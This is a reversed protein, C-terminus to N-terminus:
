GIVVVRYEGASPAVAFKITVTSTSTHEIDAEIQAYPSAVEFIQVVVDKTGLNHSISYTTASTSLTTKYKRTIEHYNVGDNSLTWKDDSENWLIQVDEETGRHVKIGADLSPPQTEPMDSNLNIVNDSINVQTTNISNISGTVNLNGNVQLNGGISTDGTVELGGNLDTAGTVELNSVATVEGNFTASGDVVISSNFTAAGTVDLTNGLEVAGTVDLTGSIDSNGNLDLSGNIQVNDNFTSTDQVTFTGKIEGSGDVTLSSKLTTDGDVNLTSDIDTAGGVHLTGTTVDLNNNLTTLGSVTLTNNLTTAGDVDLTSQLETAGDVHLTSNLNVAGNLTSTGTVELNGGIDVSGTTNLTAADIDTVNLQSPISLTANGNVAKTVTIQNATGIIDAVDHKHDARAVYPSTGHDVAEGFKLRTTYNGQGFDGSATLWESGNWFYLLNDNSNYYIQGTVPNSPESGLNQIRANLLENKNLDISVLFKRAM